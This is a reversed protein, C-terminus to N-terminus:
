RFGHQALFEVDIESSQNMRQYLLKEVYKGLVDVEINMKYGVQREPLTIHRQTYAVLIVTFSNSLVDVVTLSVGDLAIFGKPVIYQMLESTTQVNLWLADQQRQLHTLTGLSDVHGQVFHGGMRSTPTLARELHVNEGARAYMLNTRAQTEPALGVTFASSSLQTVTVCTGNVAISDGLNTGELVTQAYITMSYGQGTKWIRSVSGIEEVIGTFL